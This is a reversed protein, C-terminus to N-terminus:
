MAYTICMHGSNDKVHEDCAKVADEYSGPNKDLWEGCTMCLARWKRRELGEKIVEGLNYTGIIGTEEDRESQRFHAKIKLGPRVLAQHSLSSGSFMGNFTWHSFGWGSAPLAKLTLTKGSDFWGITDGFATDYSDAGIGAKFSGFGEVDFLVRYNGQREEFGLVRILEDSITTISETM